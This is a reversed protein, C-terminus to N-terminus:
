LAPPRGPSLSTADPVAPLPHEACLHVGSAPAHPPTWCCERQPHAKFCACLVPATRPTSRQPLVHRHSLSGRPSSPQHSSPHVCPPALRREAPRHTSTRSHHLTLIRTGSSINFFGDRSSNTKVKDTQKEGPEPQQNAEMLDRISKSRSSRM